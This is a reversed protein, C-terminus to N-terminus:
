VTGLSCHVSRLMVVVLQNPGFRVMSSRVESSSANPQVASITRLALCCCLLVAACLLLVASHWLGGSM